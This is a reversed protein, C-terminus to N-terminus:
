PENAAVIRICSLRVEVKLSAPTRTAREEENVSIYDTRNGMTVIKDDGGHGNWKTNPHTIKKGNSFQDPLNSDLKSLYAEVQTREFL